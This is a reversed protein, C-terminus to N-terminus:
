IRTIVGNDADVEVVDGNRLVETANGTGVICPINLERSVIAAHSLLGGQDTIIAGAKQCAPMLEPSTTEAVLIDGKDMEEFLKSLINFNSYYDSSFVKIRGTYKGRSAPVGRITKDTGSVKEFDNILDKAKDGDLYVLEGNTSYQVYAKNRRDLVDNNPLNNDLLESVKLLKLQELSIKLQSALKFILREAFGGTFAIQNLYQRGKTKVEEFEEINTILEKSPNNELEMYARDTYFFETKSYHTWLESIFNFAEVMEEHSINEKTLIEELREGSRKQYEQLDRKYAEFKKRSKLMELGETLTREVVNNPLYSTWTGDKFTILCSLTKYHQSFLDSLLYYIGGKLRFLRRYDTQKISSMLSRLSAQTQM